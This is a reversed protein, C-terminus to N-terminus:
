LKRVTIYSNIFFQNLKKRRIIKPSLYYFHFSFLNLLFRSYWNGILCLLVVYYIKLGLRIVLEKMFFICVCFLRYHNNVNIKDSNM